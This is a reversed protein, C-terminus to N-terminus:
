AGVWLYLWSGYGTPRPTGEAGTPLPRGIDFMLLCSGM